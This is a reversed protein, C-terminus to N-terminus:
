SSGKVSADAAVNQRKLAETYCTMFQRLRDVEGHPIEALARAEFALLDRLMEASRKQGSRTLVVRKRRRDSPHPIRRALGRSELTDLASTMTQRPFCTAEALVAPEDDEPHVQLHLLVSAANSPMGWKQGRTMFAHHISRWLPLMSNDPLVSPVGTAADYSDNKQRKKQM